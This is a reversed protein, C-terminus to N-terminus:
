RIEPLTVEIASRMTQQNHAEDGFLIRYSEDANWRIQNTSTDPEIMMTVAGADNHTAVENSASAAKIAAPADPEYMPENEDSAQLAAQRSIDQYFASIIGESIAQLQPSITKGSESAPMAQAMIWAPLRFKGSLQIAPLFVAGVVPAPAKNSSRDVPLMPITECIPPGSQKGVLAPLPVVTKSNQPQAKATTKVRPSRLLVEKGSATFQTCTRTPLKASEQRASNPPVDPQQMTWYFGVGAIGTALLLTRQKTKM